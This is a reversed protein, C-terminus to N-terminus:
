EALDGILDYSDSGLPILTLNSYRTRANIWGDTSQITVGVGAVVSMTGVGTQTFHVPESGALGAPINVAIATAKNMRIYVSGAMDEDTLDYDDTFNKIIVAALGTPIGLEPFGIQCSPM